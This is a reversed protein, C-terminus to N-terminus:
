EKRVWPEPEFGAKRREIDVLHYKFREDIKELRHHFHKNELHIAHITDYIAKIDERIMNKLMRRDHNAESRIWVLMLTIVMILAMGTGVIAIIFGLCGM